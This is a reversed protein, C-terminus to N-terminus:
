RFFRKKIKSNTLTAIINSVVEVRGVIIADKFTFENKEVLSTTERQDKSAAAGGNSRRTMGLGVGAAKKYLDDLSTNINYIKRAMKLRFVVPNNCFFGLIKQDLSTEKIVIRHVEYEIEDLIDDANYAVSTLRKMWNARARLERDEPEHSADHIIDGILTSSEKLKNIEKRFGWVIDLRLQDTALSTVNSVVEGAACELLSLVFM